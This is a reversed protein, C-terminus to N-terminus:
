KAFIKLIYVTVVRSHMLASKSLLYPYYAVKNEIKCFNQFHLSNYVYRGPFVMTLRMLANKKGQTRLSIENETKFFNVFNQGNYVYTAVLFSVM